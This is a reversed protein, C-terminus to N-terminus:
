GVTSIRRLKKTHLEISEIMKEYRLGKARHFEASLDMDAIRAYEVEHGASLYYFDRFPFLRSSYAVLSPPIDVRLIEAISVLDDVFSRDNIELDHRAFLDRVRMEIGMATQYIWLFAIAVFARFGTRSSKSGPKAPGSSGTMPDPKEVTEMKRKSAQTIRETLGRFALRVWNDYYRRNGVSLGEAEAEARLKKTFTSKGSGDNGVVFVTRSQCFGM